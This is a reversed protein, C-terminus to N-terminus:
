FAPQVTALCRRGPIGLSLDLNLTFGRPLNFRLRRGSPCIRNVGGYDLMRERIDSSIIATIRTGREPIPCRIALVLLM